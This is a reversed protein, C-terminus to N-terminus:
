TQCLSNRWPLFVCLCLNWKKKKKLLRQVTIWPSTQKRHTNTERSKGVFVNWMWCVTCLGLSAATKWAVFCLFSYKDQSGRLLRRQLGACLVREQGWPLGSLTWIEGAFLPPVHVKQWFVFSPALCGEYTAAEKKNIPQKKLHYISRYATWKGGM